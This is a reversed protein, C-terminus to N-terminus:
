IDTIDKYVITPPATYQLTAYDLLMFSENTDMRNGYIGLTLYPSGTGTTMDGTFVQTGDIFMKVTWKPTAAVYQYHCGIRRFTDDSATIGTNTHAVSDNSGANDYLYGRYYTQSPRASIGVKATDSYGDGSETTGHTNANDARFASLWFVTEDGAHAAGEPETALSHLLRFEVFCEAGDVPVNNLVQPIFFMARRYDGVPCRGRIFGRLDYGTNEYTTAHAWSDWYGGSGAVIGFKTGGGGQVDSIDQLSGAMFEDFIRVYGTDFTAGPDWKWNSDDAGTAGVAGASGAAGTAGVAGASGAAGTPGAVTSNAGTAGVAGASGAAGTPGTAGVAGAIGIGSSGSTGTAGTPGTAGVASAAGAPGVPGQPGVGSPQSLKVINPLGIESTPTSGSDSRTVTIKPM